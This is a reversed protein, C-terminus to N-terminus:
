MSLHMQNGARLVLAIAEFKKLVSPRTPCTSMARRCLGGVSVTPRPAYTRAFARLIGMFYGHKPVTYLYLIYVRPPPPPVRQGNPLRRTPVNRRQKCRCGSKTDTKHGISFNKRVYSSSQKKRLQERRRRLARGRVATTYRTFSIDDHIQRIGIAERKTQDPYKRSM